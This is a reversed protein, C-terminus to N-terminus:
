KEMKNETSLAETTIKISRVEEMGTLLWMKRKPIYWISLWTEKKHCWLYAM